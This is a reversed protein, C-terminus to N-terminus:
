TSSSAKEKVDQHAFGAIPTAATPLRGALMPSGIATADDLRLMTVGIGALGLFLGPITHTDPLGLPWEHGNAEFMALMLEGVRSAARHHDEAAFVEGALLFLEAIGGIGHCLTADRVMGQTM